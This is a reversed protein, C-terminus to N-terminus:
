GQGEAAFVVVLPDSLPMPACLLFIFLCTFLCHHITTTFQTHYSPSHHSRIHNHCSMGYRLTLHSTLPHVM